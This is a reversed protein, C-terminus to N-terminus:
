SKATWRESWFQRLRGTGFCVVVVLRAGALGLLTTHLPVSSVVLSLLMAVIKSDWILVVLCM